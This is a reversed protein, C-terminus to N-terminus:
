ELVLVYEESDEPCPIFNTKRIGTETKIYIFKKTIKVIEADSCM